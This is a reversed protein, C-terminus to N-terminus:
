CQAGKYGKDVFATEIKVGSNKMASSLTSELTHGDYPNGAIAHSAIVISRAKKHTIVLSVKTGFEYRKHAKGKSICSVEPEHLSYLKNKDSRKRSLLHNSQELIVHFVETLFKDGLIQRECDRTVRGVLIRFHEIEKRARKMQRAHLYGGIKRLAKKSVLNYNQRLSLNHKKALKVLKVRAKELLKTDTPFEINKPMVTTDVIVQKLDKKSVVGTEVAVSVSMALIKEMNEAGLRKRWRTLSSPNIPLKWQLHDYGCFYQWYANEVWM